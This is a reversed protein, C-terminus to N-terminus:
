VYTKEYASKYKEVFKKANNIRANHVADKTLSGIAAIGLGAAGAKMTNLPDNLMIRDAFRHATGISAPTLYDTFVQQSKKNYYINSSKVDGFASKYDGKYVGPMADKGIGLSKRNRVTNKTYDNALSLQQGLGAIAAGAAAGTLGRRIVNKTMQKGSIKERSSIKLAKAYRKKGEETLTGDENEYRRVGWKQGKIGHHYLEDSRTIIYSAM